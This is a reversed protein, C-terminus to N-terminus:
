KAEQVFDLIIYRGDEAKVTLKATGIKEQQEDKSKYNDNQVNMYSIKRGDDKYINFTVVYNDDKYSIDQVKYEKKISAFDDLRYLDEANINTKNQLNVKKIISQSNYDYSYNNNYAEISKAETFSDQGFYKIFENEFEEEPMATKGTKYYNELVYAIKKEKTLNNSTDTNFSSVYDEFLNYDVFNNEFYSYLGIKSLESNAENNGENKCVCIVIIINIILFLAAIIELFAVVKYFHNKEKETIKAKDM